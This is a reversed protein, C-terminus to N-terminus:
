RVASLRGLSGAADKLAVLAEVAETAFQAGACALCEVLAEGPPIPRSHSRAATMADWADALALLKAGETLESCVLGDPYGTGDPREHHHRIWEVQEDSLV